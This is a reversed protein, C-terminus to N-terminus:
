RLQQLQSEFSKKQFELASTEAWIIEIKERFYRMIRKILFAYVKFNALM